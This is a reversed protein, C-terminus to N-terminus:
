ASDGRRRTARRDVHRDSQMHSFRTTGRWDITVQHSVQQDIFSEYFFTVEGAIRCECGIVFRTRWFLFRLGEKILPLPLSMRLDDVFYAMLDPSSFIKMLVISNLKIQTKSSVGDM